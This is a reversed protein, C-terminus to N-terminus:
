DNSDSDNATYTANNTPVGISTALRKAAMWNRKNQKRKKKGDM